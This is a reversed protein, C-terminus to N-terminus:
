LIVTLILVLIERGKIHNVVKDLILRYAGTKNLLGYIGGIGLLYVFIYIFNYFTFVPYSFLNMFGAPTREGSILEGNLYTIPLIWTLLVFVLITITVVFLTNYKKMNGGGYYNYMLIFM